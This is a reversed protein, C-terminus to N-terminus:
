QRERQLKATKLERKRHLLDDAFGKKDCPQPRLSM